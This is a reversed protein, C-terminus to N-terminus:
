FPIEDDLDGGTPDENSVSGVFGKFTEAASKGGIREGDKIWLTKDLYATVGDQNGGIGDYAVFNVAPVLYCGSYFKTKALGRGDGEFEVVKGDQLASLGPPHKTRATLVVHSEFVSGDKGKAKMTAAKKDGDEIPFKLESLPREPWRAKAVAIMTTKLPGLDRSDPKLLFSGSYKPDGKNAVKRPDVLNLYTGRVAETLAFRGDIKDTM